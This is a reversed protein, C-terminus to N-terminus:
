RMQSSVHIMDLVKESVNTIKDKNKDLFCCRQKATPETTPKGANEKLKSSKLSSNRSTLGSLVSWNILPTYFATSSRCNTLATHFNSFVECLVWELSKCCKSCNQQYLATEKSAFFFFFFLLLFNVFLISTMFYYNKFCTFKKLAILEFFHKM